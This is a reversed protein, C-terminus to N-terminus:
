KKEPILKELLKVDRVLVSHHPTTPEFRSHGLKHQSLTVVIELGGGQKDFDYQLKKKDFKLVEMADYSGAFYGGITFGERDTIQVMDGPTVGKEKLMTNLNDMDQPYKTQIKDKEM